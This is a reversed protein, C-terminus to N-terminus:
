RGHGGRAHRARGRGTARAPPRERASCCRASRAHRSRSRPSRGQRIRIPRGSSCRLSRGSPSTTRREPRAAGAGRARAGRAGAALPGTGASVGLAGAAVALAIAIVDARRMARRYDLRVLPVRLWHWKVRHPPSGGPWSRPPWGHWVGLPVRLSHWKARRRRRPRREGDHYDVADGLRFIKWLGDRDPLRECAGLKGSDPYVVLDPTGSTSVALFRATVNGWNALQHGGERGRPFALVDGPELERWEGDTRVSPRGILVISCSKRPSTTTTRIPPRAPSSRGSARAWASCGSSGASARASPASAPISASSISSRSSSIPCPGPKAGGERSGAGGPHPESGAPPGIFHPCSSEVRGRDEPAQQERAGGEGEHGEHEGAAAARALAPAAPAAPVSPRAACAKGAEVTANTSAFM